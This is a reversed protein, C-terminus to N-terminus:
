ARVGGGVCGGMRVIKGCGGAGQVRFGRWQKPRTNVSKHAKMRRLMRCNGVSGGGGGVQGVGYFISLRLLWLQHRTAPFRGGELYGKHVV